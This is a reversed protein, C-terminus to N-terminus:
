PALSSWLFDRYIPDQQLIREFDKLIIMGDGRVDLSKSKHAAYKWLDLLDDHAMEVLDCIEWLEVDGDGNKDFLSFLFELLAEGDHRSAIVKAVGTVFEVFDIDGSGDGDFVQ